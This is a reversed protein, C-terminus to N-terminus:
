WVQSEGELQFAALRIKAANSTFDMAKLVKEIQQFWHDVVMSDGGGTFTSPHHSKFRHLNSTGGQSGTVGWVRPTRQSGTLGHFDVRRTNRSVCMLLIAVHPRYM